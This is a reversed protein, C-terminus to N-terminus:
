FFNLLRNKEFIKGLKLCYITNFSHIRNLYITRGACKSGQKIACTNFVNQALVM